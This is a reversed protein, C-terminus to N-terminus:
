AIVAAQDDEGDETQKQSESKIDPLKALAGMRSELSTHTYVGMTLNISSHRMLDQAVKPHVGNAALLSGFTHRLAHFDIVRGDDDWKKIGAQELDDDLMAAGALRWMGRFAKAAPLHMALHAKLDATLEGRLELMAGRRAKENKPLITVTPPDATFDFSGRTLSHIESYRMGTEIALRYVLAREEGTLGHHKKGSETAALLRGIEAVTLSRRQHRPDIKPNITKLHSLVNEALRREAVMWNLFGKVSRVFGNSTSAAMGARRQEALWKQAAATTIDSLSRWGCGQTMREVHSQANHVYRINNGKAELVTAWEVVHSMIERGAAARQPDIVNWKALNDRVSPKLTELWKLMDGALIDGSQRVAVAKDIMRGLEASASKDAFGIVRRTIDAADSFEVHYRKCGARKFIRAM